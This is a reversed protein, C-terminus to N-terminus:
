LRQWSAPFGDVVQRRVHCARWSGGFLRNGKSWSCTILRSDVRDLAEKLRVNGRSLLLFMYLVIPKDILVKRTRREQVTHSSFVDISVSGVVNM